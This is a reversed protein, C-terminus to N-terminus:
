KRSELAKLASWSTAMVLLWQPISFEGCRRSSQAGVLIAVPGPLVMRRRVRRQQAPDGRARELVLGAALDADLIAAQSRGPIGVIQM